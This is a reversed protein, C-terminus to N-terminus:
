VVPMTFTTTLSSANDFAVGDSTIWKDFEKGTPAQDATITVTEGDAFNGGGTGKTVTLTYLANDVTLKGKTYTVNYSDANDLTGGSITIDYEGVTNTDTESSIITPNTFTDGNVLGTVTYTLQPM